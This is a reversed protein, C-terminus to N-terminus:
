IRQRKAIYWNKIEFPSIKIVSFSKKESNVFNNFNFDSLKKKPFKRIFFALYIFSIYKNCSTTRFTVGCVNQWSWSGCFLLWMWLAQVSWMMVNLSGAGCLLLLPWLSKFLLLVINIYSVFFGTTVQLHKFIM